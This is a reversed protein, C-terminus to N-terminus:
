FNYRFDVGYMRPMGLVQFVSFVPPFDFLVARQSYREDTLNKGWAAVSWNDGAGFYSLRANILGFSDAHGRPDNGGAGAITLEREGTWVYDGGIVVRGSDLNWNYEGGVTFSSKPGPLRNGEDVQPDEGPAVPAGKTLKADLLGLTGYVSLNETVLAQMELELGDSEAEGFNGTLVGFVLEGEREVTTFGSLQIDTWEQHFATASLLVRGGALTAKVGAEFNM